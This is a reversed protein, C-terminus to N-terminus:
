YEAPNEVSKPKEIQINEPILIERKKGGIGDREPGPRSIGEWM